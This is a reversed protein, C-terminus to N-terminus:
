EKEEKAIIAKALAICTAEAEDTHDAYEATGVITHDFFADVYEGRDDCEHSISLRRKASLDFMRASDQTLWVKNDVEGRYNCEDDYYALTGNITYADIGLLSALKESLEQHDNTM